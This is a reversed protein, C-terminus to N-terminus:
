IVVFSPFKLNEGGFFKQAQHSIFNIWNIIFVAQYIESPSSVFKTTYNLKIRSHSKFSTIMMTSFCFEFFFNKIALMSIFFITPIFFFWWPSKIFQKAKYTQLTRELWQQHIAYFCFYLSFFHTIWMHGWITCLILFKSRSALKFDCCLNSGPVPSHFHSKGRLQCDSIFILLIQLSLTLWFNNNLKYVCSTLCWAQWRFTKM